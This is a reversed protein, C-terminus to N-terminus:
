RNKRTSQKRTNRFGGHFRGLCTLFKNINDDYHENWPNPKWPNDHSEPTDVKKSIDRLAKATVEQVESHMKLRMEGCVTHLQDKLSKGQFASRPNGRKDVVFQRYIGYTARVDDNTCNELTIDYVGSLFCILLQINVLFLGTSHGLTSEVDLIKASTHNGNKYYLTNCYVLKQKGRDISLDVQLNHSTDSQQVSYNFDLGEKLLKAHEICRKIRACRREINYFKRGVSLRASRRNHSKKKVSEM